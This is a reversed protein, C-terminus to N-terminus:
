LMERYEYGVLQINVKNMSYRIEGGIQSLNLILKNVHGYGIVMM